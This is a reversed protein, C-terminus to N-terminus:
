HFFHTFFQDEFYFQRFFIQLDLETNKCLRVFLCITKEWCFKESPIDLDGLLWPTYCFKLM